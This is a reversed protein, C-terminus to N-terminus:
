SAKALVADVAPQLTMRDGQAQVKFAKLLSHGWLATPLEGEVLVAEVNRVVHEGVQVEPILVRKGRTPGAATQLQVAQGGTGALGLAAAMRAPLAVLSAGSDVVGQVGKGQIRVELPYLGNAGAKLVVSGAGGVGRGGASSSGLRATAGVSLRERRGAVDVDAGDPGVALVKVGDVQAGARLVRPVGDIVFLAQAGMLGSLQVSQALSLAPWLMAAGLASRVFGVTLSFSTKM